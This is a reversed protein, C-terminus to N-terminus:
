SAPAIVIPDGFYGALNLMEFAEAVPPSHGAMHLACERQGATKKALMLLQIGACDIDTVGSLDVEVRAGPQLPALLPGKWELARYITLEGEIRLVGPDSAM